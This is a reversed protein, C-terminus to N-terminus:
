NGRCGEALTHYAKCGPYTFYSNFPSFCRFWEFNHVAYPSELDFLRTYQEENIIGSSVLMHEAADLTDTLYMAGESPGDYACFSAWSCSRGMQCSAEVMVMIKGKYNAKSYADDLCHPCQETLLWKLKNYLNDKEPLMPSTMYNSYLMVLVSDAYKFAYDTGVINKDGEVTFQILLNTGGFFTEKRLQQCRLLVTKTDESSMHEVDFSIGIRGMATADTHSITAIWRFFTEAFQLMAAGDKATVDGYTFYLVAQENRVRSKFDKSFQILKDGDPILDPSSYDGINVFTSGCAWERGISSDLFDLLGPNGSRWYSADWSYVGIRRGPCSSNPSRAGTYTASFSLGPEPTTLALFSPDASPHYSAGCGTHIVCCLAAFVTVVAPM